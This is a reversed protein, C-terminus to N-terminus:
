KERTLIWETLLRVGYGTGGTPVEDKSSKALANGAIDLHAWTTEGAFHQLFSAATTAGPGGTGTNRLDAINSKLKDEYGLPLHWLNENVQKGAFTLEKILENNDSFIAAYDNGVARVKSGTLTAIDVMVEPKYNERAYWMADSLVLRGEADTNTIEVTLGQATLLVDGPAISHESVMNAAMGMIAVVNVKAESMALAKVTGLAAAAGAMDVKMHAISSHTKINYGGSDFTIGKGVLAIPADKSGKYHAVVLRAGDKSGRGVGELANMNLKKLQKPTLVKIEVDYKKLSKAAKIFDIPTMETATESTLDRALYVGSEIYSLPKYAKTAAKGDNVDFFYSKEQRKEELYKDFRYARLNIGHALLASTKANDKGLNDSAITINQIPKQELKASLNAGLKTLQDKSLPLEGTGVIVVREYALNHPALIEIFKGYDGEFDSAAVAKDLQGNAQTNYKKYTENAQKAGHFVVLTDTTKSVSTEFTIKEALTISSCTLATLAITFKSLKSIM